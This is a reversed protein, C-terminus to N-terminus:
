AYQNETKKLKLESVRHLGFADGSGTKEVFFMDKGAWTNEELHEPRPKGIFFIIIRSGKIKLDSAIKQLEGSPRPTIFVSTAGSPLAGSENLIMDCYPRNIGSKARALMELICMLSNQKVPLLNSGGLAGEVSLEGNTKRTLETLSDIGNVSLGTQSKHLSLEYALSATFEIATESDSGLCADYRYDNEDMNLFLQIIPTVTPEYEKVMLSGRRATARWHIKKQSDGIGYDRIGNMRTQDEFWIEWAKRSGLPISCDAM